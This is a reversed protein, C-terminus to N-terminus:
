NFFHFFLYVLHTNVIKQIDFIRGEKLYKVEPAVIIDFPEIKQLYAQLDRLPLNLIILTVCNRFNIFRLYNQFDDHRFHKQWHFLEFFKDKENAISYDLATTM